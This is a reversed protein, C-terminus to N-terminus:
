KSGAYVAIIYLIGDGPCLNRQVIQNLKNNVVLFIYNLNFANKKNYGPFGSPWVSLAWRAKIHIVGGSQRPCDILSCGVGFPNFIEILMESRYLIM